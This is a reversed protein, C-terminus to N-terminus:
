SSRIRSATMCGPRCSLMRATWVLLAVNPYVASDSCCNAMERIRAMSCPRDTTCAEVTPTLPNTAGSPVTVSLVANNV